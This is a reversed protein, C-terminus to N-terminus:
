KGRGMLVIWITYFLIKIDMSLTMNELYLIDYKLRQVMEEVNEAYGFKVQGWSTIGPKIKLLLKYHPAYEVIQNIFFEREPRYGVLAMDGKLVTFFQPIEDLRVKRLFLGFPTIRPDNKSSLKPTDKEANQYMTRFKIMDFSKGKYGIRKHSYFIPGKSSIRVGIAVILFVPSLLILAIISIVIDMIRKVIKQWIPMIDSSIQILPAQFIATMKVSGLLINHMDPIIKIVVNSQELITIISDVSRHESPDVAIIAEEINYKSIVENADKYNGLHPLYEEIQYEDYNNVNLFGVFKNGSSVYENEMERYLETARGNGGIVVTNFGIQKNHIKHVTKTTLLFRFFSTIFFHLLFLTLAYFYLDKYSKVFDDLVVAFFIILVGILSAMFTQGLERIRSKRFINKYHGLVAYFILWSIPIIILGLYFNQDTLIVRKLDPVFPEYVFKRYAFFLSWALIAALWDLLVYKAIQLRKNM